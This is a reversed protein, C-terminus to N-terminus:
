PRVWPYFNKLESERILVLQGTVQGAKSVGMAM